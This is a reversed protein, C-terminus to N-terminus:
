IYACICSCVYIYMHIYIYIYIYIYTHEKQVHYKSCQGKHGCVWFLFHKCVHDAHLYSFGFFCSAVAVHSFLTFIMLVSMIFLIFAPSTVQSGLGSTHFCLLPAAVMDGQFMALGLFGFSLTLCRLDDPDFCLLSFLDSRGQSSFADPSGLEYLLSRSTAVAAVHFHYSIRTHTVHFNCIEHHERENWRQAEPRSEM